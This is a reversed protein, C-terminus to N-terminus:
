KYSRDCGGEKENRFGKEEEVHVEEAEEAEEAEFFEFIEGLIDLIEIITLVALRWDYLM